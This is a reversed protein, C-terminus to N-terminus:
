MFSGLWTRGKDYDKDALAVQLVGSDDEDSDSSDNENEIQQHLVNKTTLTATSRHPDAASEMAALDVSNHESQSDRIRGHISGSRISGHASSGHASSGHVSEPGDFVGKLPKYQSYKIGARGSKKRGNWCTM